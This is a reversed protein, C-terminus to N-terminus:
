MYGFRNFFWSLEDILGDILMEDNGAFRGPKNISHVIPWDTALELGLSLNVQNLWSDRDKSDLPLYNPKFPDVALVLRRFYDCLSAIQYYAPNNPKRACWSLAVM